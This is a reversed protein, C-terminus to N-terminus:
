RNIDALCDRYSRWGKFIAAIGDWRKHVLFHLSKKLLFLSFGMIFIFRNFGKAHLRMNILRNRVLHYVYFPLNQNLASWMEVFEQQKDRSSAQVRHFVLAGPEYRISWGLDQIRLCLEVDEEYMFFREDFGSLEAMLERRILLACGSAFSVERAQLALPADSSGMFGPTFASGRLWSVEGGGYWLMNPNDMFVIRPTVMGVEPHNDLSTELQTITDAEVTADNNFIFIFECETKSLAWNIGLNNGGGFGLNQAASIFHVDPYKVLIDQMGLDNPTNDVLVVHPVVDSAYFSRLCALTDKAGKYNVLIVTSRSM